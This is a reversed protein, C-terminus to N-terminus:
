RQQVCRTLVCWNNEWKRMAYKSEKQNKKELKIQQKKKTRTRQNNVAKKWVIEDNDDYDVFSTSIRKEPNEIETIPFQIQTHIHQAGIWDHTHRKNANALCKSPAHPGLIWLFISSVIVAAISAVYIHSYLLFNHIWQRLYNSKYLNIIRNTKKRARANTNTKWYTYLFPRHHMDYRLSRVFSIPALHSTIPMTLACVYVCLPIHYLLFVCIMSPNELKTHSQATMSIPCPLFNFSSFPSWWHQLSDTKKLSM